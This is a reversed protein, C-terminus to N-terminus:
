LPYKLSNTVHYKENQLKVILPKFSDLCFYKLYLKPNFLYNDYYHIVLKTM